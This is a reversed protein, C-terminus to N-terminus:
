ILFASHLTFLPPRQNYRYSYVFPTFKSAHLEALVFGHDSFDILPISDTDGADGARLETEEKEKLLVPLVISNHAPHYDCKEQAPDVGQASVTFFVPAFFQFLTLVLVVRMIHIRAKIM